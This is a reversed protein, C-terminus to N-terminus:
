ATRGCRHGSLDALVVLVVEEDGIEGATRASQQLRIAGPVHALVPREKGDAVSHAAGRGTLDGALERHVDEVLLHDLAQVIRLGQLAVLQRTAENATDFRRAEPDELLGLEIARAAAHPGRDGRCRQHVVVQEERLHSVRASVQHAVALENLQRPILREDILEDLGTLEVSSSASVKSCLLMMRWASPVASM